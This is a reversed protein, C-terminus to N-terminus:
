LRAIFNIAAATVQGLFTLHHSVLWQAPHYEHVQIEKKGQELVVRGRPRTMTM